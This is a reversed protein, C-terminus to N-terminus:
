LKAHVLADYSTLDVPITALLMADTLANERM